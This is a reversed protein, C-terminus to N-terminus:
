REANNKVAAPIEAINAKMRDTFKWREGFRFGDDMHLVFMKAGHSFTVKMWSIRFQDEDAQSLNVEVSKVLVEGKTIDYSKIIDQGENFDSPLVSLLENNRELLAQSHEKGMKNKVIIDDLDQTLREVEKKLQLHEFGNTTKADAQKM